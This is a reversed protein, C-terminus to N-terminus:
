EPSVFTTSVEPASKGYMSEFSVEACLRKLESRKVLPPLGELLVLNDGARLATGDQSPIRCKSPKCGLSRWIGLATHVTLVDLSGDNVAVRVKTVVAPGLGSNVLTLSGTAPRNEDAWRFELWPKVSLRAHKRMVWGQWVAVGVASLAICSLAIDGPELGIKVLIFIAVGVIAPIGFAMLRRAYVGSKETAVLM